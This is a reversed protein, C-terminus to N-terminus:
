FMGLTGDRKARRLAWRFVQISIPLLIAAIALTVIFPFLVQPDTLSGNDLVSLRMIDYIWTQPIFLSISSLHVGVSNLHSIPFTMGAFLSAAINIAWSVPDNTKTVIRFGASIMALSFVVVGSIAIAVVTSVINVSFQAGFVYIGIFLQPVFLIVSLLYNWGTTGLVFTPARIGTMLITELTWPNVSNRVGSNLPMILNSVLIGSVLFSVYSTSYTPGFIGNLQQVAPQGLTGIFGWTAVGLMGGIIATIAQTKYTAWRTMDRHMLAFAKRPEFPIDPKLLDRM